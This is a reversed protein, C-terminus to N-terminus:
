RASYRSVAKPMQWITGFSALFCPRYLLFDHWGKVVGRNKDGKNNREDGM